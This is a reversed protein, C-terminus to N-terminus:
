SPKESKRSGARVSYAVGQQSEIDYYLVKKYKQPSLPLVDKQEKVLTTAKDACEAAWAKHEATGLETLAEQTSPTLKGEAQKQPLKLAAKLALIKTVAENLREQTVIEKKVGSRMYEYDEDINKSFLFM